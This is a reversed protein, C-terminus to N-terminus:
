GGAIPSLVTVVDGDKLLTREADQVQEDGLFVLITRSLQQNADLLFHTLADDARKPLRKLCELVSCPGLLEIQQSSTGAAHKIQGMYQITIKVNGAGGMIAGDRLYLVQDALARTETRNHTVHLVTVGTQRQVAHLLRYMDTRTDDDLASLPEDLLLVRPQFSLARGLAVRQSEGGSLGSPRRSLLRTLGLLDALEYVRADIRGFDWRRIRQAFALHERVTMTQFLALDQPVYGIGRDAPALRTVDRDVLAITGSDIRRFGCLAELLTTKGAGTKGMLVAYKGQAVTFSLSRLAFTGSRISLNSVTIM